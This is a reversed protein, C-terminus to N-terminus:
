RGASASGQLFRFCVFFFFFFLLFFFFSFFDSIYLVICVVGPNNRINRITLGRRVGSVNDTGFFFAWGKGGGGELLVGRVFM